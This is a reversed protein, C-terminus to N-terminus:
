AAVRDVLDALRSLWGIAEAGSVPLSAPRDLLYLAVVVGSSWALGRTALRLFTGVLRFVVLCLVQVLAGLVAARVITESGYRDLLARGRALARDSFADEPAGKRVREKPTNAKIAGPDLRSQRFSLDDDADDSWDFAVPLAAPRGVGAAGVGSGAGLLCLVALVAGAALRAWAGYRAGGLIPVLLRSSM